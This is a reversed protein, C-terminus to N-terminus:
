RWQCQTFQMAESALQMAESAPIHNTTHLKFEQLSDGSNAAGTDPNLVNRNFTESRHGNRWERGERNIALMERENVVGGM